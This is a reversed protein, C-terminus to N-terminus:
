AAEVSRGDSLADTVQQRMEPPLREALETILTAQETTAGRPDMERWGALLTEAAEVSRGDSLADTVQQRSDALETILAAQETTAARSGMERWGALLAEVAEAPRDRNLADIVQQRMDVPLGEALDAILGTQGEAGLQQWESFLSESLLAQGAEGSSADNLLALLQERKGAPLQEELSSLMAQMAGQPSTDAADMGQQGSVEAADALQQLLARWGGAGSASDQM